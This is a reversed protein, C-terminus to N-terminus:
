KGLSIDVFSKIGLTDFGACLSRALHEPINWVTVDGDEDTQTDLEFREAAEQIQEAQDQTAGLVCVGWHIGM